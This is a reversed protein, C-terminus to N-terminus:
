VYLEVDRERYIGDMLRLETQGVQWVCVCTLEHLDLSRRARVNFGNASIKEGWDLLLESFILVSGGTESCLEDIEDRSVAGLSDEANSQERLTVIM